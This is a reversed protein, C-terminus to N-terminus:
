GSRRDLMSRALDDLPAVSAVGLLDAVVVDIASWDGVELLARAGDALRHAASESPRPLMLRRLHTAEVKLAGGGMVTGAAELFARTWSSSLLALMVLPNDGWFTSFNADVVMSRTPELWPVPHGSNVRALFLDPTHRPTFPPLHYWFRASGAPGALRVNTRVASLDPLAVNLGHRHYTTGAAVRVLRALDGDITNWHGLGGSNCVDEPLAWGRLDLVYSSTTTVVRGTRPLDAQRRAAPRLVDPPLHLVEGPLLASTWGNRLPSVYFFDNAGSRLGQGVTWGLQELSALGRPVSGLCDLIPAPVHSSAAEPEPDEWGFRHAGQRVVRLLDHGDSWSYHLGLRQGNARQELWQLAISAFAQDPDANATFRGVLSGADALGGPVGISLHGGPAFPTGKDPVRRAVVLTTRALVEPFWAVDVDEVVFELDFFRRLLYVVPAAYDRSLWTNPVVLALRGGLAVRSCCLIWSPVALDALGSYGRACEIFAAREVGLLHASGDLLALLGERVEKSSPIAVSTRAPSGSAQYRVYPPNTIVLDWAEALGVWTAPDFASGVRPPAGLRLAALSAVEPDIEIGTCALGDPGLDLAAVLMDGSGAMPDIVSKAGNAQSLAALLRALRPGSFYQGLRKRREIATM